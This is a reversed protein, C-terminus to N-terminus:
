RGSRRAARRETTAAEVRHPPPGVTKKGSITGRANWERDWAKGQAARERELQKWQEDTWLPKELDGVIEMQDAMCGFVTKERPPDPPVLKAVPKGRKTIVYTERREAVRDMLELCQAKFKTAAVTAV